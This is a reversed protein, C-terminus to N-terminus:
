MNTVKDLHKRVAEANALVTRAREQDKHEKERAGQLVEEAQEQPVVVVGDADGIIIDGPRVSVGGCSIPVNVQGVGTKGGAAVTTGKCFVPFDLNKVGLIDRITGDAVVGALGLAQAMGMVFDGAIANYEYGKSDVVLVDGPKAMRIGKLVILNDNALVKVTCAPGSIKYEEKLPKIAVDMNTLGKLADSICTTPLEKFQEYINSM